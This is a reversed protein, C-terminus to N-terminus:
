STNPVMPGIPHWAISRASASRCASRCAGDRRREVRQAEAAEIRQGREHPRKGARVDEVDDDVDVAVGLIGAKDLGFVVRRQLESVSNYFHVVARPAGIAPRGALRREFKNDTLTRMADSGSSM